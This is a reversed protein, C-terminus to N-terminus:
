AERTRARIFADVCVPDWQSGSGRRLIEMARENDMAKRYPRDTTMASFADAVAMLRGLLPIQEGALGSPYGGGDWREHHFRVADLTAEFGPVANVMIAGMTPHQKIAAFEEDTLKGPKRLIDDPVGIKGVDHLLAALKVHFLTSADLGLEEAIQVSYTLVDESHRRTYRDKNDVASVLANLMSFNDQSGVLGSQLQAVIHASGSDGYKAETLREDAIAMVDMRGQADGPCVAFGSSLTLPVEWQYDAPRYGAGTMAGEVRDLFSQAESAQAGPLIMAFEDGGLRALADDSRCISRIIGAVKRLVEDGAAHGYADNFFKFNDLDMVAVAYPRQALRYEASVEALRTHFARHNLLGTLPDRDARDLADELMRERERELERQHTIDHSIGILGTIAGHDDRLPIKTSSFWSLKGAANRVQRVKNHMPLGSSLVAADEEELEVSQSAGLYDATRMGVMDTPSKAGMFSAHSTNNVVFRGDLDKIYISAPLNDILTRLQNHENSLNESTLKSETIDRNLAVIGLVKGAADNFAVKTTAIWQHSGDPHKRLLEYSIRPLGEYILLRDEAEFRDAYNPPFLDSMFPGSAIEAPTVGISKCAAPNMALVRGECDKVFLEDPITDVITRLLNREAQLQDEARKRETIDVSVGVVRWTNDGDQEIHVDESLWRIEGDELKIRFQQSYGAAGTDLAHNARDNMHVMDEALRARFLADGYREDEAQEVPLWEKATDAHALSIQWRYRNEILRVTAHWIICRASTLVDRVERQATELDAQASRRNDDDSKFQRPTPFDGSACTNTHVGFPLNWSTM